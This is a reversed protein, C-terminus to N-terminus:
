GIPHARVEVPLHGALPSDGFILPTATACVAKAVRLGGGLWPPTLDVFATERREGVNAAPKRDHVLHAGDLWDRLQRQYPRWQFREIHHGATPGIEPPGDLSVEGWLFALLQTAETQAALLAGAADARAGFGMVLPADPRTPFGFVAAVEVDFSFSAADPEPFSYARWEYSAVSGLPSSSPFPLRTPRSEGYWSRLVRDREALEWRARVCATRWDAHLAVGNSRAYRWRAPDDSEPFVTAGAEHGRPVGDDTLLAYAPARQRLAELTAVRELLEFYSRRV